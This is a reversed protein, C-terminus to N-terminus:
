VHPIEYAVELYKVARISADKNMFWIHSSQSPAFLATIPLSVFIKVRLSVWVCMSVWKYVAARLVEDWGKWSFITVLTLKWLHWTKKRVYKRENMWLEPKGTHDNCRKRSKWSCCTLLSCFIRSIIAPVKWLYESILMIIWQLWLSVCM